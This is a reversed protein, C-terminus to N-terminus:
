GSTPPSRGEISAVQRATGVAPQELSLWSHCRDISGVIRLGDIGVIPHGVARIQDVAKAAVVGDDAEAADVHDDAAEAGIRHVAAQGAVVGGAVDVGQDAYDDAEGSTEAEVAGGLAVNEAIEFVQVTRSVVINEQAVVGAVKEGPLGTVVRQGAGPAGVLQIAVVAVVRELATAAGVCEM